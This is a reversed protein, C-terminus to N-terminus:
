SKKTDNTNELTEIPKNSNYKMGDHTVIPEEVKDAFKELNIGLITSLSKIFNYSLDEKPRIHHDFKQFSMGMMKALKSLNYGKSKLYPKIHYM